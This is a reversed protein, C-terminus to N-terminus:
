TGSETRVPFYDYCCGEIFGGANPVALSPNLNIDESAMLFTDIVGCEAWVPFADNRDGTIAGDFNPVDRLGRM